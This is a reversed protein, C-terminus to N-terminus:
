SGTQIFSFSHLKIDEEQKGSGDLKGNCMMEFLSGTLNSIYLSGSPGVCGPDAPALCGHWQLFLSCFTNSGVRGWDKRPQWM